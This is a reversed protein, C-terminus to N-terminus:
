SGVLVGLLALCNARWHVQENYLWQGWINCAIILSISFTPFIFARELGSSSAIAYMFFFACSGNLVGGLVGWITEALAPLKKEQFAYIAIHMLCAILFILPVYWESQLEERSINWLHCNELFLIHMQTALLFLGQVVFALTAFLIWLAKEQVFRQKSAAWFLGAVVIISGIVQNLTYSFNLSTGFLLALICAPAVSASNVSAFTLSAPGKKVAFGVMYKVSGLLIGALLSSLLTFWNIDYSNAQIPHLFSLVVFTMFLQFFFFVFVSGGTDMSKRMCLNSLAGLVGSLVMWYM